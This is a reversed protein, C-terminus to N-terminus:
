GAPVPAAPRVAYLHRPGTVGRLEVTGRDDFALGSGASLQMTIDSVLIEGPGALAMIRAAEHIALGRLGDRSMEIEGTHVGVRIPLDLKATAEVIARASLIARAAGDFRAFVGDGTSSVLVGRFREVENRIVADHTGILRKWGDDGLREAIPTSGVVDTFLLTSLVREANQPRGWEAIQTSMEILITAEDGLAAGDHGAPVEYVDGRLFDYVRGDEMEIRLHGQLVTGRHNVQCSDTGAIPKVHTSWRWGPQAISRAVTIDGLNVLQIQINEFSRQEDPEDLTRKM